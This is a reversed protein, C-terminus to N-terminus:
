RSAKTPPNGSPKRDSAGEYESSSEPKPLEVAPDQRADAARRTQKGPPQKTPRRATHKENPM